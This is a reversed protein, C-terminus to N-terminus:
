VNTKNRIDVSVTLERLRDYQFLPVCPCLRSFFHWHLWATLFSELFHTRSRRTELSFLETRKRQVSIFCEACWVTHSFEFSFSHYRADKCVDEQLGLLILRHLVLLKLAISRCLLCTCYIGAEPSVFVTEPLSDSRCCLSKWHFFFFLCALLLLLEAHVSHCDGELGITTWLPKLSSDPIQLEPTKTSRHMMETSTTVSWQGLPISLNSSTRNFDSWFVITKKKGWMTSRKIQVFGEFVLNLVIFLDSCSCAHLSSGQETSKFM